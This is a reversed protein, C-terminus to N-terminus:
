IMAALLSSPLDTLAHALSASADLLVVEQMVFTNRM